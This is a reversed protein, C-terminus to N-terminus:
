FYSDVLAGLKGLKRMMRDSASPLDCDIEAAPDSQRRLSAIEARVIRSDGTPVRWDGVWDIRPVVETNM